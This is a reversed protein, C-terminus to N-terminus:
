LRVKAMANIAAEVDARVAPTLPRVEGESDTYNVCRALIAESAGQVPHPSTPHPPTPHPPTLHPLTPYPPTLRPHTDVDVHSNSHTPYSTYSCTPISHLM